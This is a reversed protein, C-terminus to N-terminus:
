WCEVLELKQDMTLSAVQEENFTIDPWFRYTAVAVACWKAHEKAIGMRAVAKLKM